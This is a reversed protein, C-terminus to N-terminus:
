NEILYPYRKTHTIRGFMYGAERCPHYSEALQPHQSFLRFIHSRTRRISSGYESTNQHVLKSAM